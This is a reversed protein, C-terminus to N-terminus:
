NENLHLLRKLRKKNARITFRFAKFGVMRIGKFLFKFNFWFSPTDHITNMEVGRKALDISLNYKDNVPNMVSTVWKGKHIAGGTKYSYSYIPYDKPTCYFVKNKGETRITGFYEWAWPDDNKKVYKLLDSKRWIAPCSNLRYETGEPIIAFGTNDKMLGDTDSVLYVVSANKNDKLVRICKNIDEQVIAKELFFDELVVFIFETDIKNISNQFRKGWKVNVDSNIIDINFGKYSYNKTETNLYIKYPCDSYYEKFCSFFPEWVDSYKDCSNILISCDNNKM